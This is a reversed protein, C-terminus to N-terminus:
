PLIKLRDCNNLEWAKRSPSCIIAAYKCGVSSSFTNAFDQKLAGYFFKAFSFEHVSIQCGNCQLMATTRSPYEAGQYLQFRCCCMKTQLTKSCRRRQRICQAPSNERELGASALASSPLQLGRSSLEHQLKTVDGPLTVGEDLKKLVDYM